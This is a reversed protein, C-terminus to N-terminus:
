DAAAELSRAQVFRREGGGHLDGRDRDRRFGWEFAPAGSNGALLGASISTRM